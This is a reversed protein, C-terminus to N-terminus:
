EAAKKKKLEKAEEMAKMFIDQAHRRM